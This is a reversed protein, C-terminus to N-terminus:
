VATANNMVVSMLLDGAGRDFVGVRTLVSDGTLRLVETRTYFPGVRGQSLYSMALDYTIMSKHAVTRAACQGAIDAMNAVMGGELAGIHNRVYASMDLEVVGSAEDIVRLGARDFLHESLGPGEARFTTAQNSIVDKVMEVNGDRRSLRYFTAIGSGVSTSSGTIGAVIETKVVVAARGARLVSSVAAVEGTKAPQTSYIRLDGTATLDPYVVRAALAGSALDVLTALVGAQVAGRENCVSPVVPVRTTSSEKGNYALTMNLDRIMHDRAMHDNAIQRDM